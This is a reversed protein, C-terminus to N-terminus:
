DLREEIIEVQYDEELSQRLAAYELGAVRSRLRRSRIAADAVSGSEPLEGARVGSLRLLATGGEPLETLGYTPTQEDGPRPMAFVADRVAAPMADDDRRVWGPNELIGAGEQAVAALDAGGRVRALADEALTRAREAAARERLTAEIEDRVASLPRREGAQHDAVRVVVQRDSSLQIPMSNLGDKLVSDSFAAKRVADYDGLGEGDERSIWGTKRIELDLEDALPRLSDPAEFSLSDLRETMQRFRQDREQARYMELLERQVESDDFPKTKGAEVEVLKILHWGFETKVPASVEGEDLSFLKEEFPKVMSGRTVWDLMGGESATAQDDSHERALEAFDSGEELKQALSQIRKRAASADDGPRVLIHRARRRETTRFRADKEQEYLARLFEEDPKAAPELDNRDVEVYSLKVREPRTFAGPNDDYYAQIRSEEVAVDDRVDEVRFAVFAVERRQEDLRYDAAVARHTVFASDLLGRRVQRVLIDERLGAEFASAAIGAQSLLSRYREPSFRGDVQFQQQNRLAELVQADPVRYGRDRAYQQLLADQILGDLVRRRFREPEVMDHNFNDGMLRQLRQYRQDYARQLEYKTIEVDGAHAVPPNPDETFYSGIGWVGFVLSILAVLVYAIPGSSNDRIRQLM